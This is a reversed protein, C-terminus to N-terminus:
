YINSLYEVFLLIFGWTRFWLCIQLLGCGDEWCARQPGTDTSRIGSIQIDFGYYPKSDMM